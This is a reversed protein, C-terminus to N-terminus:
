EVEEGPLSNIESEAVEIRRQLLSVLQRLQELNLNSVFPLVEEPTKPKESLPKESAIAILQELTYGLHPAIRALTDNTPEKFQCTELRDITKHTVGVLTAFSRLSMRRAQRAALIIKALRALGDPTYISSL